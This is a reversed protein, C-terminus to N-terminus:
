RIVLVRLEGVLISSEPESVGRIAAMIAKKSSVYHNFFIKKVPL